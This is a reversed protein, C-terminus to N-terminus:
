EIVQDKTFMPKQEKPKRLERRYKESISEEDAPWVDVPKVM